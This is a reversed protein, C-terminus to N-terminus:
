GVVTGRQDSEPTDAEVLLRLRGIRADWEAAVDDLFSRMTLLQEPRVQWLRDRGSRFSDILGAHELVRLHKSLGQRSIGRRSGQISSTSLPGSECLSRVVSLRFPDGLAAFATAQRHALPREAGSEIM